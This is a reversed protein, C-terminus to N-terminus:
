AVDFLVTVQDNEVAIESGLAGNCFNCSLLAQTEIAPRTYEIGLLLRQLTNQAALHFRAVHHDNPVLSRLAARAHALHQARRPGDHAPSQAIRNCENGVAPERPAAMPEHHSM